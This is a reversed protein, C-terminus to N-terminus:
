LVVFDAAGGVDALAVDLERAALDLQELVAFHEVADELLAPRREVLQGGCPLAALRAAGDVGEGAGIIPIRPFIHELSRGGALVLPAMSRAGHRASSVQSLMLPRARSRMSRKRRRSGLFRLAPRAYRVYLASFLASSSPAQMRKKSAWQVLLDHKPSRLSKRGRMECRSSPSKMLCMSSAALACAGVAM